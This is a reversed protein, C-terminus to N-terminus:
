IAALDAFLYTPTAEILLVLAGSEKLESDHGKQCLANRAEFPM